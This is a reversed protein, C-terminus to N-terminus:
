ILEKTIVLERLLMTAADPTPAGESSCMSNAARASATRSCPETVASSSQLRGNGRM